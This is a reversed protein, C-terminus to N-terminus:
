GPEGLVRDVAAAEVDLRALLGAVIRREAGPGVLPVKVTLSGDLVRVTGDDDRVLAVTASGHLRDPAAEAAFSLHGGSGDLRLEQVWTLRRGALLRRAVPDLSGVFEYRLRVHGPGHDLVEAPALDPLRLGAHFAPDCLIAAVREPPGGFRHRATFRM